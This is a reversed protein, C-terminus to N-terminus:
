VEHLKEQIRHSDAIWALDLLQQLEERLERKRGKEKSSKLTEFAEAKAEEALGLSKPGRKRESSAIGGSSLLSRGGLSEFPNPLKVHTCSVTDVISSRMTRSEPKHGWSAFTNVPIFGIRVMHKRVPRIICDLLFLPSVTYGNLFIGSEQLM